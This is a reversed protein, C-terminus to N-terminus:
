QGDTGNKKVEAEAAKQANKSLEQAEKKLTEKANKFEYAARGLAKALEPIRKSGFLLLIVVIILFIETFGISM